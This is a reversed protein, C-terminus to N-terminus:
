AVIVKFVKDYAESALKKIRSVDLHIVLSTKVLSEDKLITWVLVEEQKPTLKAKRIADEYEALTAKQLWHKAKARNKDMTHEKEEWAVFCM